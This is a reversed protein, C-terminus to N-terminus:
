IGDAALPQRVARWRLVMVLALGAVELVVPWASAALGSDVQPLFFKMLVTQDLDLGRVLLPVIVYLAALYVLAALDARRRRRGFNLTMVLLCDRVLFLSAVIMLTKVDISAAGVRFLEALEPDFENRVGAQVQGVALNVVLAIAVLMLSTLWFPQFEFIETVRFRRVAAVYSRYGQLSKTETLVALYTFLTATAWIVTLFVFASNNFTPARQYLTDFGALYVGVFLVFLAWAWRYGRFQLVSRLQRVTGLVAWLLYVVLSAIVFWVVPTAIGYWNAMAFSSADQTLARGSVTNVFSGLRDAFVGAVGIAFVQCFTVSIGKSSRSRAMLVVAVFMAVVLGLFASLLDHATSWVIDGPGLVVTRLPISQPRDLWTAYLELRAAANVLISILAGYLVFSTNGFLKGTFIQGASLASLRQSDWTNNALESGFAGAAKRTGWLFVLLWFVIESTTIVGAADETVWAVAFILGLIVPMALLRQSTLEILINRKLEPNM